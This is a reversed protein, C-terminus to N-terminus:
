ISRKRSMQIQNIQMTSVLESLILIHYTVIGVQYIAMQTKIKKIFLQALSEDFMQTGDQIQSQLKRLEM